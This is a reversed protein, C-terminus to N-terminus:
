NGVGLMDIGYVYDYVVYGDQVILVSRDRSVENIVSVTSSTARHGNEDLLTRISESLEVIGDRMDDWAELTEKNGQAAMMAGAAVGDNWVSVNLVGDDESVKYNTGYNGALSLSVIEIIEYISKKDKIRDIQIKTYPSTYAYEMSVYKNGTEEDTYVLDGTLCDGKQGLTNRVGYAQDSMDMVVSLTYDEALALYGNPDTFKKSKAESDKVTIEQSVNYGDENSLTLSLKTKDPLNTKIMFEPWGEEGEVSITIEPEFTKLAFYSISITEDVAWSDGAKFSTKGKMSVSDVAGDKEGDTTERVTLTINDLGLERLETEVEKVPRGKVEDSSWPAKITDTLKIVGCGSLALALALMIIFARCGNKRSM